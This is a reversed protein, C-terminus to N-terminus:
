DTCYASCITCSSLLLAFFVPIVVTHMIYYTGGHVYLLHNIDLIYMCLYLLNINYVSNCLLYIVRSIHGGSPLLKFLNHGTHSPDATIKWAWKGVWSTNLDQLNFMQHCLDGCIENDQQPGMLLSIWVLIHNIPLSILSFSQQTLSSWCISHGAAYKKLQHQSVNEAPGKM